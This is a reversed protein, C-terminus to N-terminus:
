LWFGLFLVNSKNVFLVMYQEYFKLYSTLSYRYYHYVDLSVINIYPTNLHM